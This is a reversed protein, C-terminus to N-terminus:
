PSNNGLGSGLPSQAWGQGVLGKESLGLKSEGPKLREPAQSEQGPLSWSARACCFSSGALWCGRRGQAGGVESTWSAKSSGSTKRQRISRVAEKAGALSQLAPRPGEQLPLIPGLLRVQKRRGKDGAVASALIVALQAPLQPQNEGGSQQPMLPEAPKAPGVLARGDPHLGPHM